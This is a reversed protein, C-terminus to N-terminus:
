GEPMQNRLGAILGIHLTQQGLFGEELAERHGTGGANVQFQLEETLDLLCLLDVAPPSERHISFSPKQCSQGGTGAQSLAGREWFSWSSDWSQSGISSVPTLFWKQGLPQPVTFLQVSM